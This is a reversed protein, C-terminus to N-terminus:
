YQSYWPTKRSPRTKADSGGIPYERLSAWQREYVSWTHVVFEFARSGNFLAQWRERRGWEDKRQRIGWEKRLELDLIVDTVIHLPEEVRVLWPPEIATNRGVLFRLRQSRSESSFQCSRKVFWVPFLRVCPVITSSLSSPLVRFICRAPCQTTMCYARIRGALVSEVDTFTTYQYTQLRSPSRLTEEAQTGGFSSGDSGNKEKENSALEVDIVCNGWRSSSPTPFEPIMPLFTDTIVLDVSPGIVTASPM